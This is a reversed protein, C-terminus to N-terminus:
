NGRYRYTIRANSGDSALRKVTVRDGVSIRVYHVRLAGSIAAKIVEGNDLAVTYMAYPLVETVTGDIEEFKSQNEEVGGVVEDLEDESLMNKRDENSM